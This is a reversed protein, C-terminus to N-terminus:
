ITQKKNKIITAIIAILEECELLLLNRKATRGYKIYAMIKIAVRSEKLEKLSIGLKHIQDRSSQAGQAEGFNLASSSSSRILQGILNYATKDNPGENLFLIVDGAFAVLRDELDFKNHKM